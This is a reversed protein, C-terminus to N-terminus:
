RSQVFSLPVDHPCTMRKPSFRSSKDSYTEADSTTVHRIGYAPCPSLRIVMSLTLSPM